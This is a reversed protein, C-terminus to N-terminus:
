SQFKIERVDLLAYDAENTSIERQGLGFEFGEEVAKWDTKRSLLMAEDGAAETGPYRVPIFGVGQGGNTWTFETQAWVLDLLEAPEGLTMSQIQHIPLWKYQGNLIIEIVPGLRADADGLWEFAEGNITGAVPQAGEFAKERLEGAAEFQGKAALENSKILSGIWEEPEGMVVPTKNGAFIDARLNECHILDGFVKLLKEDSALESYVRLQTLARQWDASVCFLDFLLRRYEPKSPHSRAGDKAVTIAKAVEGERILSEIEDL